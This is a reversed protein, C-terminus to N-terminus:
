YTDIVKIETITPDRKENIFYKQIFLLDDISMSLQHANHFRIIQQKSQKIFGKIFQVDNNMSPIEDFKNFNIDIEQSDVPNILYKKIKNIEQTSLKGEIIFVNATKVKPESKPNILKICQECSDARQDFQGPLYCTTFIHAHKPITIKNLFILDTQPEGFISHIAQKFTTEDINGVLYKKILRVNSIKSINLNTRIDHFIENAESNFSNKKEVFIIRNITSM